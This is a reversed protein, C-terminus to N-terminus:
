RNSTGSLASVRRRATGALGLLTGCGYALHMTLFAAPLAPTERPWGHRAGLRLTAALSAVGYSGALAWLPRRWRGGMLGLLLTGALGAVFLAPVAHRAQMQAPHREAVRLKNM